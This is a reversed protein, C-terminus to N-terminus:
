KSLEADEPLESALFGESPAGEAADSTPDPVKGLLLESVASVSPEGGGGHAVNEDKLLCIM